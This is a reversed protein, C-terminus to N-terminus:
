ILLKEKKNLVPILLIDDPINFNKSNKLTKFDDYKLVFSKQKSMQKYDRYIKYWIIFIKPHGM